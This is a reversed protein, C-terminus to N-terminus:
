VLASKIGAIVEAWNRAVFMDSCAGIRHETGDPAIANAYFVGPNTTFCELCAVYQGDNSVLLDDIEYDLDGSCPGPIWPM